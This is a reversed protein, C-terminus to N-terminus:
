RSWFVANRQLITGGSLFKQFHTTFVAARLAARFKKADSQGYIHGVPWLHTRDSEAVILGYCDQEIWSQKITQELRTGDSPQQINILSLICQREVSEGISPLNRLHNSKSSQDQVEM